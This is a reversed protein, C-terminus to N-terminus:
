RVDVATASMAVATAGKFAELTLSQGATITLDGTASITIAGTLGDFTISSGKSDEITMTPNPLSDDLTISHGSPSRWARKKNLGLPDDVPPRSRATWLAGLVYPKSLQGHEFAVLVQDGVAPVAYFGANSGAMPRVLPAWGSTFTDSLGPFSVKVRGTPIEPPVAALENTETVEGLVVGFFQEQKDPSPADMMQKRLLGLLSSHGRQTISFDTTFGGSNIRHTVKRVRYTGSFRTGVGKVAIYAGATLDPVGICSGTGEYMGELLNSLLSRALVAADLPNEVTGKRVGKRVLSSLLDLASRGLREVLNDLDFDAALVTVYISQALEQSYVRIVQLGALGAASIRPSFSSLNRGWELEYAALQPRPFQFHLRDWEVYVDFFYQEARAKLFAFDPEVQIVKKALGPTPDVIPILGNMAAIKAAILSDPM